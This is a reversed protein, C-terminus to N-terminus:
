IKIYDLPYLKIIELFIEKLKKENEKNLEIVQYQGLVEYDAILDLYLYPNKIENLYNNIDKSEEILPNLFEIKTKDFQSLDFNEKGSIMFVKGLISRLIITNPSDNVNINKQYCLDIVPFILIGLLLGLINKKPVLKLVLIPLLFSGFLIIGISKIALVFGLCLGLLIFQNKKNFFINLM